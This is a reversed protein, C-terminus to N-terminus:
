GTLGLLWSRSPTTPPTSGDGAAIAVGGFAPRTRGDMCASGCPSPAPIGRIRIHKRGWQLPNKLIGAKLAFRLPVQPTGAPRPVLQECAARCSRTRTSVRMAGTHTGSTLCFKTCRM